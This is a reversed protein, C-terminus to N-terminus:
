AGKQIELSRKVWAEIEAESLELREVLKKPLPRSMKPRTAEFTEVAIHDVAAILVPLPDAVQAVDPTHHRGIASVVRKPLGWREAVLKGVDAHTFGFVENELECLPRGSSQSLVVADAFEERLHDFLVFKGIDHLLGTVFAEQHSLGKFLRTPASAALEATLTSHQWMERPDFQQDPRLGSYLDAKSVQLAISQLADLGLIAAAHAIDLVPTSLSYFASNAIRLVRAALPPDQAILAGIEALGCNPDRLLEQVRTVVEPLSPLSLKGSLRNQLAQTNLM